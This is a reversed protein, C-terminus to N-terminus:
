GHRRRLGLLPSPLLSYTTDFTDLHHKHLLLLLLVPKHLHFPSPLTAEALETLLISVGIISKSVTTLPPMM